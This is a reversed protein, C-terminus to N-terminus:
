RSFFFFGLERPSDPNQLQQGSKNANKTRHSLFSLNSVMLGTDAASMRAANLHNLDTDALLFDAMGTPIVSKKSSSALNSSAVEDKGLLDPPAGGSM